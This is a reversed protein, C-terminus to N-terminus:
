VKKMSPMLTLIDRDGLNGIARSSKYNVMGVIVLDVEEAIARKVRLVITDISEASSFAFFSTTEFWWNSGNGCAAKIEANLDTLRASYTKEYGDSDHLRFSLWYTEAM